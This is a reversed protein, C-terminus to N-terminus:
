ENDKDEGSIKCELGNRLTMSVFNMLEEFENSTFWYIPNIGYPSDEINALVEVKYYDYTWLNNM